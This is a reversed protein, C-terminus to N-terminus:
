VDSTMHDADSDATIIDDKDLKHQVKPSNNESSLGISDYGVDEPRIKLLIQEEDKGLLWPFTELVWDAPDEWQARRGYVQLLLKFIFGYAIRFM